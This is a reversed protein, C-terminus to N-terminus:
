SVLCHALEQKSERTIRVNAPSSVVEQRTLRHMTRCRFPPYQDSYDLNHVLLEGTPLLHYKGDLFFIVIYTYCWFAFHLFMASLHSPSLSLIHAIQFAAFQLIVKHQTYFSHKMIRCFMKCDLLYANQLGRNLLACVRMYLIHDSYRAASCTVCPQWSGWDRV